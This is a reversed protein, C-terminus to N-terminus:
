WPKNRAKISRHCPFQNFIPQLNIMQDKINIVFIVLEDCKFGQALFTNIEDNITEILLFSFKQVYM